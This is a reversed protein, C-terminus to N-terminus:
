ICVQETNQLQGGSRFTQAPLPTSRPVIPHDAAKNHREDFPIPMKQLQHWTVLVPFFTIRRLSQARHHSTQLVVQRRLFLEM